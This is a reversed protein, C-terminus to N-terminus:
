VCLMNKFNTEERHRWIINVKRWLQSKRVNNKLIKEQLIFNRANRGAENRKDVPLMCVEILKDALAGDSENEAYFIIKDYAASYSPLRHAVYPKGSALCEM